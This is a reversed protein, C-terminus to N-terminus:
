EGQMMKLLRFCLNDIKGMHPNFGSVNSLVIVGLNNDVDLAMSATYGGTAGNHWVVDKGGDLTLIHWGLGIKMHDNVIFTPRIPHALVENAPDFHATAFRALDEVTSLIGGAGALVNLDWNSAPDGKGDIGRILETKVKSRDTTSHFMNWRTFIMDRLMSEYDSRFVQGLLYGLLGAGLNSYEYKTGPNSSLEAQETLCTILQEENYNKYPNKPDVLHLNLNPPLRPLGSTHNALHQFKVPTELNWAIDLYDQITDDGEVVDMSDLISLLVATFVKSISGIEFTSHHNEVHLLTDKQRLLGFYKVKEDQILAVALQTQDPFVLITERISDQFEPDPIDLVPNSGYQGYGVCWMTALFYITFTSIVKM